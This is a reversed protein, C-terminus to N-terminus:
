HRVERTEHRGSIMWRGDRMRIRHRTSRVFSQSSRASAQDEALLLLRFRDVLCHKWTCLAARELMDDGGLRHGELFCEIWGELIVASLDHAVCLRERIRQDVVAEVDDGSAGVVM